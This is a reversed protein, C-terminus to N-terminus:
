TAVSAGGVEMWRHLSHHTGSRLLAYTRLDCHPSSPQNNKDTNKRRKMREAEHRSGHLCRWGGRDAGGWRCTACSGCQWPSHTMKEEKACLSKIRSAFHSAGEGRFHFHTIFWCREGMSFCRLPFSATRHGGKLSKAAFSSLLVRRTLRWLLEGLEEEEEQRKKRKVLAFLGSPSIAPLSLAATSIGPSGGLNWQKAADSSSSSSSSICWNMLVLRLTLKLLTKKQEKETGQWVSCLFSKIGESPIHPHTHMHKLAWKPWQAFINVLISYLPHRNFLLFNSPILSEAENSQTKSFLVFYFGYVQKWVVKHGSDPTM